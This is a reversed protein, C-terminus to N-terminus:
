LYILRPPKFYADIVTIGINITFGSLIKSYKGIKSRQHGESQQGDTQPHREVESRQSGDETKRRGDESVTM